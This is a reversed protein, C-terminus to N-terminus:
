ATLRSEALDEDTLVGLEVARTLLIGLTKSGKAVGGGANRFLKEAAELFQGAALQDKVLGAAIRATGLSLLSLLVGAPVTDVPPPPTTLRDIESRAAALQRELEAARGEATQARHNLEGAADSVAVLSELIDITM